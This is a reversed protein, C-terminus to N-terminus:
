PCKTWLISVIPCHKTVTLILAFTRDNHILQEHYLQYCSRKKARFILYHLSIIAFDAGSVTKSKETEKTGTSMQKQLFRKTVVKISNSVHLKMVLTRLKISEERRWVYFILTRKWVIDFSYHMLNQRRQVETGMLTDNVSHELKIKVIILKFLINVLEGGMLGESRLILHILLSIKM